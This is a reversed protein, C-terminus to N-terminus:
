GYVLVPYNIDMFLHLGCWLQYVFTGLFIFDSVWYCHCLVVIECLHGIHDNIIACSFLQIIALQTLIGLM